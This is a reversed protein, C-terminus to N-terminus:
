VIANSDTFDGATAPNHWFWIGADYAANIRAMAWGPVGYGSGQNARFSCNETQVYNFSQRGTENPIKDENVAYGYVTFFDDIARAYEERVCMGIFSFGYAGVGSTAASTTQGRVGDPVNSQDYLSAGFQLGSAGANALMVGGAARGVTSVVGLRGATESAALRAGTSTAARGVVPTMAGMTAGLAGATKAATAAARIMGVGPIAMAAISLLNMALSGANQALWNQYSNFPWSVQPIGGMTLAFEPNEAAMGNYNVPIAWIDGAPDPSGKLMFAPASYEAAPGFFEYRYDRYQGKYNTARMFCYPWTLLKNNRPTYGDVDTPIDHVHFTLRGTTYQDGAQGFLPTVSYLNAQDINSMALPFVTMSVISEAKGNRNMSWLWDTFAGTFYGGDEQIALPAAWVCAGEVTGDLVGGYVQNGDPQDGAFIFVCPERLDFSYSSAGVGDQSSATRTQWQTTMEGTGVPEPQINAGRTDDNVHERLVRQSTRTYDHYYTALVDIEFDIQTTEDNVYVARVIDFFYTRGSGNVFYGYNASEVAEYPAGVKLTGAEPRVFYNNSSTFVSYSAVSARRAAYNVYTICHNGGQPKPYNALVITTNPAAM